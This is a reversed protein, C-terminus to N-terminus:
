GRKTSGSLDKRYESFGEVPGWQMGTSDLGWGGM